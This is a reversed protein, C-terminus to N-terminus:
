GLTLMYGIGAATLGGAISGCQTLISMVTDCLETLEDLSDPDAWAAVDCDCVPLQSPFGTDLSEWTIHPASLHACVFAPMSEVVMLVAPQAAEQAPDRSAYSPTVSIMCCLCLLMAISVLVWPCSDSAKDSAEHTDPAGTNGTDPVATRAATMRQKRALMLKVTAPPTSPTRHVPM